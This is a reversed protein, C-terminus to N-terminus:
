LAKFCVWCFTIKDHKQMVFTTFLAVFMEFISQCILFFYRGFYDQSPNKGNHFHLCPFDSNERFFLFEFTETKLHQSGVGFLLIHMISTCVSSCLGENQKFKSKFVKPNGGKYMCFVPDLDHKPTFHKNTLRNEIKKHCM